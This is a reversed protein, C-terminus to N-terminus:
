KAPTEQRKTGQAVRENGGEVTEVLRLDSTRAWYRGNCKAGHKRPKQTRPSTPRPLGSATKGCVEWMSGVYKGCSGGSAATLTPRFPAETPHATPWDILAPFTGRGQAPRGAVGGACRSASPADHRSSRATRARDSLGRDCPHGLSPQGRGAHPAAAEKNPLREACLCRPHVGGHHDQSTPRTALPSKVLRDLISYGPRRAVPNGLAAPTARAFSPAAIRFLRTWSLALGDLM